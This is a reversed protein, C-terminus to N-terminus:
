LRRDLFKGILGFARVKQEADFSGHGEAELEEYEFDGDPGVRPHHFEPLRALEEPTFRKKGSM